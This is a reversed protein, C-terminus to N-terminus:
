RRAAFFIECCAAAEGRRHRRARRASSPLDAPQLNAGTFVGGGKPDEAAFRLEGAARHGIAAACM